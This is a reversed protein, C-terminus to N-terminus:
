PPVRPIKWDSPPPVPGVVLIGRVFSHSCLAPTVFVPTSLPQNAPCIVPAILILPSFAPLAHLAAGSALSSPWLIAANECLVAHPHSKSIWSCARSM